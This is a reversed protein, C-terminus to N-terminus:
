YFVHFIIITLLLSYAIFYLFQVFYIKQDQM